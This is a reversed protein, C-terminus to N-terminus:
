VRNEVIERTSVDAFDVEAHGAYARNSTTIPHNEAHQDTVNNAVENNDGAGVGSESTNSTGVNALGSRQLEELQQARRHQSAITLVSWYFLDQKNIGLLKWVIIKFFRGYKQKTMENARQELNIDAYQPDNLVLRARESMPILDQLFAQLAPDRQIEDLDVSELDVDNDGDDDDEARDNNGSSSDADNNTNGNTQGNNDNNVGETTENDQQYDRKFLYDRKCMPCCARRKTLWPDLCIAHFVHGCILGRVVDDDELVELCIACSGSDFHLGHTVTETQTRKESSSEVAEVKSATTGVKPDEDTIDNDTEVRTVAEDMRKMEIDNSLDIGAQEQATYLTNVSRNDDTGGGVVEIIGQEDPEEKLMGDRKEVDREKGGNLWDFYTKQPFLKEVEEVTLKKMKSFRRRRRRRRGNRRRERLYRGERFALTEEIINARTQNHDRMFSLQEQIEEPTFVHIFAHNHGAGTNGFTSPTYPSRRGLPSVAIGYKSRMFYRITFFVFILAIFVGVALAIFFLVTSPTSGIFSFDDSVESDNTASASSATYSSSSSTAETSASQVELSSFPATTTHSEM